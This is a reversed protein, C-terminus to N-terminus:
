LKHNTAIPSLNPHKLRKEDSFGLVLCYFKNPLVKNTQPTQTTKFITRLFNM